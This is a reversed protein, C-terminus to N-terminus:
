VLGQLVALCRITIKLSLDINFLRFLRHACIHRLAELAHTLLEFRKQSAMKINIFKAQLSTRCAKKNQQKLTNLMYIHEFPSSQQSKQM